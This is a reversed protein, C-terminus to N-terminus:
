MIGTEEMKRRFYNKAKYFKKWTLLGIIICPPVYLFELLVNVWYAQGYFGAICERVAALAFNFPLISNVASFFSPMVESPFTGGSGAVQLVLLFIAIAKGVDDLAITLTYVIKNFTYGCVVCALM